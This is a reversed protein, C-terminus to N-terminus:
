GRESLDRSATADRLADAIINFAVSALTIVLGPILILRPTRNIVTFGRQILNGLSSGPPQISLGLYSLAGEALLALGMMAMAQVIVPMAMNPLVHRRVIRWDGAGIVVAAEVFAEERTALVQGRVLRIFTPAFALSLGIMANVIGPGLVGVVGMAMLLGPVSMLGDTARMLFWDLRGGVYGSIMGVVSGVALALGVAVVAAFFSTRMGFLVRSLLDRGIDDTGLWHDRSPAQLIDPSIQEPPYPAIWSALVAALLLLVLMSVAVWTLTQSRLRRWVRSRGRAPGLPTEVTTATM